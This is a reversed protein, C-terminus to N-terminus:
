SRQGGRKAQRRTIASVLLDEEVAGILLRVARNKLSDVVGTRTNDKTEVDYIKGHLQGALVKLFTLRGSHPLQERLLAGLRLADEGDRQSVIAKLLRLYELQWEGMGSVALTIKAARRLRVVSNLHATLYLLPLFDRFLRAVTQFTIESMGARGALVAIVYLTTLAFPVQVPALTSDLAQQRRGKFEMLLMSRLFPTAVVMTRTIESPAEDLESPSLGLLSSLHSRFEDMASNPEVVVPGTHSSAPLSRATEDLQARAFDFYGKSEDCRAALATVRRELLILDDIDVGHVTVLPVEADIGQSAM